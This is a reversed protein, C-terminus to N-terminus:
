MAQATTLLAWAVSEDHGAVCDLKRLSRLSTQAPRADVDKKENHWYSTSPRAGARKVRTKSANHGAMVRLSRADNRNRRAKTTPRQTDTRGRKSRNRPDFRAAKKIFNDNLRLM